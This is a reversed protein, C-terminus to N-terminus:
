PVVELNQWYGRWSVQATIVICYWYTAYIKHIYTQKAFMIFQLM